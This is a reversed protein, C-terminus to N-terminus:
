NLRALEGQHFRLAILGLNISAEALESKRAETFYSLAAPVHGRISELVGLNNQIAPSSVGRAILSLWITKAMDYQGQEMAALALLNHLAPNKSEKKLLGRITRYAQQPNKIRLQNLEAIRVKEEEASYESENLKLAEERENSLLQFSLLKPGYDISAVGRDKLAEKFFSASQYFSNPVTSDEGSSIFSTQFSPLSYTVTLPYRQPDLQRALSQCQLKWTSLVRHQSAKELCQQTISKAKEKFPSVMKSNLEQRYLDLQAATLESPVPAESIEASLGAYANATKYIAALGEEGGLAAIKGFEVELEKLMRLKKALLTEVQQQSNNLRIAEFARERSEARRLLVKAMLQIGRPTESLAKSFRDVTTQAEEGLVAQSKGYLRKQAEELRLTYDLYDSISIGKESRAKLLFSIQKETQDQTLYFDLLDESVGSKDKAYSNLYSLFAKEAKETQGAGWYYIGALRLSEKAKAHTSFERSFMEFFQGAKEFETLAEYHKAIGLMLNERFPSKPFKTLFQEQSELAEKSLGAKSFCVGANYLAKEALVADEAGHTKVYKLYAKGAEEMRSDSELQAIEKLESKRLIDSIESQFRADNFFPTKLFRKVATVMNKYDNKRNLIDLILVASQKSQAQDPYDQVVQWFLKYADAYEYHLYNLYACQFLIGSAEPTKPFDKLYLNGSKLFFRETESFPLAEVSEAGGVTLKSHSAPSFDSLGSQKRAQGIQASSAMLAYKLSNSRLEKSATPSDFVDFYTKSALEYEQQHFL